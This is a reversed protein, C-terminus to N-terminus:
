LAPGPSQQIWCLGSHRPSAPSTYTCHPIGRPPPLLGLAAPFLGTSVGAGGLPRPKLHGATSSYGGWGASYVNGTGGVPVFVEQQLSAAAGPGAQWATKRQSGEQTSSNQARTVTLQHSTSFYLLLEQVELNVLRSLSRKARPLPTTRVTGRRAAQPRVRPELQRM